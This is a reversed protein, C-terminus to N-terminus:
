VVTRDPVDDQAGRVDGAMKERGLRRGCKLGADQAVGGNTGIAYDMEKRHAEM